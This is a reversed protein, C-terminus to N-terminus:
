SMSKPAAVGADPVYVKKILNAVLLAKLAIKDIELHAPSENGLHLEAQLSECLDSGQSQIM